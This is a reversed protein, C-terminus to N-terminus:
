DEKPKCAEKLEEISANNPIEWEKAWSPHFIGGAGGLGVTPHYIDPHDNWSMEKVVVDNLWKVVHHCDKVLFYQADHIHAMPHIDLRHISALTKKQIEIAARNNLMGWSQGLANGATRGESKAEYPTKSNNWVVKKLIPTRVRLGFACTVYGDISAQQLKAAVWKDSHEYMRHYNGEISKAELESLGLSGQLGHHTGGYTLLFTPTKSEQRIKPYKFKISNIAAVDSNGAALAADVAAVIDLMRDGFYGYARLCHGDYGDTYVKIKEPDKTTLASIKDELSAFDWGMILWGPPAVFCKKTYKALDAGSPMNMLNPDSSSLRGSVTGGLRFSGHLYHVGDPKLQTKTEFATLFTSLIISRDAIGMLCEFIESHEASQSRNLLKQITKGGTAGAGSDTKDIIPYGMQKYFLEQLQLNSNPNFELDTFAEPLKKKINEPHKAKGKRFEYDGILAKLQLVKRFNQMTPCVSLRLMFDKTAAELVTRSDKVEDQDTPLGTLEMQLLVKVSPHFIKEYVPLQDDAVMKPYNKNHAYWTSLCDVLNYKLLDPLPIKRIDNISEQGWNGAFEQAVDKLSLKNGACSNVALYTILQTDDFHRTMVELGRLLGETDWPDDMWLEFICVKGDYGLNHWILKGQYTELFKRFLAKVEPNDQQRGMLSTLITDGNEAISEEIWNEPVYDCAFAGGNHQDWAFGITGIGAEYFRLSFAELDCTLEDYQHLSELFAGIEGPTKPYVESHIIDSGLKVLNGCVHGALAKNGMEIKEVVTPNIFIAQYNAGLIVNMHEYGKIACPLVYGYHKEATKMGSLTKFYAGDCVYLNKIGLSECAPLLSKLHEKILGVTVKGKLGYKANFGVMTEVPVGLVVLPDVYHKEMEAKKLAQTKVIIATDYTQASQFIVHRM